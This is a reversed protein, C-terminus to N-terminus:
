HLIACFCCLEDEQSECIVGVELNGEEQYKQEDVEDSQNPIPPITSTM